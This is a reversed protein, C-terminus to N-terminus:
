FCLRLELAGSCQVVIVQPPCHNTIIASTWKPELGAPLERTLWYTTCLSFDGSQLISIYSKNKLVCSTVKRKGKHADENIAITYVPTPNCKTLSNKVRTLADKWESEGGEM